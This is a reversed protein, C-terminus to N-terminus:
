ALGSIVAPIAIVVFYGYVENNELVGQSLADTRWELDGHFLHPM